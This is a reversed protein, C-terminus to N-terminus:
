RDPALKVPAVSPAQKEPGGGTQTPVFRVPAVRVLVWKVSTLRVAAWSVPALRVPAVRVPAVRVPVTRTGTPWVTAEVLLAPATTVQGVGADNGPAVGPLQVGGGDPDVKGSPVVVM